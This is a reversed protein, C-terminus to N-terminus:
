LVEIQIESNVSLVFSSACVIAKRLRSRPKEKTGETSYLSAEAHYSGSGTTAYADAPTLIQGNCEYLYIQGNYGIIMSAGIEGADEKTCSADIGVLKSITKGLRHIYERDNENEFPRPPVLEHTILNIVKYDGCIGLLLNTKKIIKKERYARGTFTNSGFTDAAMYVKGKDVLGVICTM